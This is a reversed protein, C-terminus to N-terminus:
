KTIEVVVNEDIKIINLVNYRKQLGHIYLKNRSTLYMGKSQFNNKILERTKRQVDKETEIGNFVIFISENNPFNQLLDAIAETVAAMNDFVFNRNYEASLLTYNNLNKNDASNVYFSVDIFPVFKGDKASLNMVYEYFDEDEEDVEFKQLFVKHNMVNMDVILELGDSGMDYIYKVPSYGSKFSNINFPTSSKLTMKNKSDLFEYLTKARM